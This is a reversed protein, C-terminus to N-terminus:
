AYGAIKYVLYGVVEHILNGFDNIGSFNPVFLHEFEWKRKGVNRDTSYPTTKLGVKEFCALSRRMHFASTILLLDGKLQISDLLQKTFLANERTNKSESEIFFDTEPIGLTLLYRRVWPGEKEEPHLVSGSGGTFVIKKIYGKKYLEIAQWLRDASRIFQLRDIEKDYLTMGGLVIGAEYTKLAQYKTAPMEWMRQFEGLIFANSFLLTICLSAILTRKKLKENKSFVSVLLLAIIWIIPSIIFQLVKSFVFFM